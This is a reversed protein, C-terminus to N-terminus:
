KIFDYIIKSFLLSLLFFMYITFYIITRKKSINNKILSITLIINIPLSIACYIVLSAIHSIILYFLICDSEPYGSKGTLPDPPPPDLDLCYNHINLFYSILIVVLFYYPLICIFKHINEKKM